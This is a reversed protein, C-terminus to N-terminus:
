QASVRLEMAENVRLQEVVFSKKIFATLLIGHMLEKLGQLLSSGSTHKKNM